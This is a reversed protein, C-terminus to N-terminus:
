GQSEVITTVKIKKDKLTFDKKILRKVTEKQKAYPTLVAISYYPVKYQGHLLKTM